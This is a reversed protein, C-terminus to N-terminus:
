AVPAKNTVLAETMSHRLRESAGIHYFHQVPIIQLGPQQWHEQLAGNTRFQNEKWTSLIFPCPLQKLLRILTQENETTWTNYYDVHRGLYPPDVYVLDAQESVALTATFDAVQFTWTHTDLIEQVRRVQNVIKTIYPKAFRQPKRCFPVNFQGKRNFRIIGNFCSRNLFLFDLPQQTQNFRDRVEYYYRDGGAALKESATELYAAAIAPTISGTQIARYFRIIHQNTDALIAREPLVNFAVVGSGCFPEIWTGTLDTGVLAQIAPILKTKIGQCKIPPVVIAM